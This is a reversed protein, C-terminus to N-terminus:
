SHIKILHHLFIVLLVPFISLYIGLLRWVSTHKMWNGLSGCAPAKSSTAFHLRMMLVKKKKKKM